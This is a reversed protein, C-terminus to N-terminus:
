SKLATRNQYTIDFEGLEVAWKMLRSSVKPKYLISRPPFAITIIISHYQFYPRLKRAATVLALALKELM